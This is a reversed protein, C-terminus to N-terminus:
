RRWFLGLRRRRRGPSPVPEDGRGSTPQAEERTITPAVGRARLRAFDGRVAASMEQKHSQEEV